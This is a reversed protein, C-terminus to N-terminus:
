GRSSYRDIPAVLAGSQYDRIAQRIEDVTNMVFPGHQVIPEGLPRGSLLL